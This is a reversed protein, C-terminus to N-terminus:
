TRLKGRRKKCRRKALTPELEGDGLLSVASHRAKKNEISHFWELRGDVKVGFVPGKCIKQCRVESIIGLGELVSLLAQYKKSKKRCGSGRCV